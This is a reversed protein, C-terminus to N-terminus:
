MALMVLDGLMRAIFQSDNSQNPQIILILGGNALRSENRGTILLM